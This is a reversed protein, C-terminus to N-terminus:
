TTETRQEAKTTDSVQVAQESNLLKDVVRQVQVKCNLEDHTPKHYLFSDVLTIGDWIEWLWGIGGEKIHVVYKGKVGMFRTYDIMAWKM